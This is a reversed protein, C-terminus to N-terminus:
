RKSTPAYAAGSYEAGCNKCKFVAHSKRKLRKKGCSPCDYYSRKLSKGADSLLRLKRGYRVKEKVM